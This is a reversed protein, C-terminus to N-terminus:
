ATNCWYWRLLVSFKLNPSSSIISSSNTGSLQGTDGFVSINFNYPNQVIMDIFDVESENFSDYFKSTHSISLNVIRFFKVYENEAM